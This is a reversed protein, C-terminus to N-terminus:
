AENYEGGIILTIRPFQPDIDTVRWKTGMYEVYVIKSCHQIAFPDAVINIDKSLTIDNNIINTNQRRWRNSIVDGYYEIEIINEEWIGPETEETISYGVKGFWKSM